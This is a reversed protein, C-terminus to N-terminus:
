ERGVLDIMFTADGTVSLVRWRLFRLLGTLPIPVNNVANLNVANGVLVYSGEENVASHELQVTGGTAAKLIRIQAM